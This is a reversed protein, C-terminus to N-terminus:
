QYEIKGIEDVIFCFDIQSLINKITKNLQIYNM